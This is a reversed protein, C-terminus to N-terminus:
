LSPLGKGVRLFPSHEQMRQEKAGLEVTEEKFFLLVPVKGLDILNGLIGGDRRCDEGERIDLPEEEEFDVDKKEEGREELEIGEEGHKLYMLLLFPM